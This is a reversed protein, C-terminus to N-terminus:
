KYNVNTFMDKMELYLAILLLIEERTWCYEKKRLVEIETTESSTRIREAM